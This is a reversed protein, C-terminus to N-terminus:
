GVAPHEPLHPHHVTSVSILRWIALIAVVIGTIWLNIPVILTPIFASVILWLGILGNIIGQWEYEYTWFGFIAIVVGLIFLNIPVQVLVWYGTIFAWIGALINFWPRFRLM